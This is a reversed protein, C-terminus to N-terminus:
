LRVGKEVEQLPDAPSWKGEEVTSNIYTKNLFYVFNNKFRYSSSALLANGEQKFLTFKRSLIKGLSIRENIQCIEFCPYKFFGGVIVLRESALLSFPVEFRLTPVEQHAM